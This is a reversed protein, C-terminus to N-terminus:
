GQTNLRRLPYPPMFLCGRRIEKPNGAAHKQGPARLNEGRQRQREKDAGASAARLDALAATRDDAGRPIGIRMGADPSGMGHGDLADVDGFVLAVDVPVPDAIGADSKGVQFNGFAAVVDVLAEVFIPFGGGAGADRAASVMEDVPAAQRRLLGHPERLGDRM